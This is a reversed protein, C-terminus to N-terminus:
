SQAPAIKIEIRRNMRRGAEDSNAAVPQSEGLGAAEMRSPSIGLQELLNKVAEARRRSLDLNYAGSGQSDTHGEVRVVTRPYKSLVTAIRESAAYLAQGVAVSNSDFGAGGRLRLTVLARQRSVEVDQEKALAARLEREEAEMMRGSRAAVAGKAAAEIATAIPSPRAQHKVPGNTFVPVMGSGGRSSPTVERNNRVQPACSTLLLLILVGVWLDRPKCTTM